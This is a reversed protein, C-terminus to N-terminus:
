FRSQGFSGLKLSIETSCVFRAVGWRGGNQNSWVDWLRDVDRFKILLWFPRWGNLSVQIRKIRGALMPHIPQPAHCSIPSSPEYRGLHYATTNIFKCFLLSLTYLAIVLNPLYSCEGGEELSSWARAIWATAVFASIMTAVGPEMWIVAFTKRVMWSLSRISSPFSFVYFKNSSKSRGLNTLM